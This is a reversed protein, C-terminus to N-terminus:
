VLPFFVPSGPLFGQLLTRVLVLSLGRIAGPRSRIWAVNSPSCERFQAMGAGWQVFLKAINLIFQITVCTLGRLADYRGWM